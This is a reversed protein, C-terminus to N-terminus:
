QQWGEPELLGARRWCSLTARSKDLAAAVEDLTYDAYLYRRALRVEPHDHTYKEKHHAQPIMLDPKWPKKIIPKFMEMWVNM